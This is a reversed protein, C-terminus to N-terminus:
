PADQDWDGSPTSSSSSEKTASLARPGLCKQYALKREEETMLKVKLTAYRKDLQAKVENAQVENWETEIETGIMTNFQQCTMVTVERMQAISAESFPGHQFMTRLLYLNGVKDVWTGGWPKAPAPALAAAQQGALQSFIQLDPLWGDWAKPMLRIKQVTSRIVPWHVYKCADLWLQMRNSADAKGLPDSGFNDSWRKGYMQDFSQWVYLVKKEAAAEAEREKNISDAQEAPTKTPKRKRSANM